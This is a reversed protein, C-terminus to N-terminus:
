AGKFPIRQIVLDRIEEATVGAMVKLEVKSGQPIPEREFSLFRYNDLISIDGPSALLDHYATGRTLNMNSMDVWDKHLKQIGNVKIYLENLTGLNITVAGGPISTSFFLIGTIDGLATFEHIWNDGSSSGTGVTNRTFETYHLSYNRPIGDLAHYGISLQTTDGNAVAVFTGEITVEASTPPFWAPIILGSIYVQQNDGASIATMPNHALWLVNLAYMDVMRAFIEPTGGVKINIPNLNGLSAIITPPTATNQLNDMAIIFYEVYKSKCISVTTPLLNATFTANPGLIYDSLEM